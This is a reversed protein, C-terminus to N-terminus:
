HQPNDLDARRRLGKLFDWMPVRKMYERYADGFEEVNFRDEKVSGIRFCAIAVAGMVVSLVSQFVLMLAVSWIVLGLWMPHRVVGYIGTDVVVTTGHPALADGAEPKGKRKLQIMAGFVLFASPVYLVLGVTRPWSADAPAYMGAEPFFCGVTLLTFFIGLGTHNYIEGTIHERASRAIQKGNIIWIAACIAVCLIYRYM